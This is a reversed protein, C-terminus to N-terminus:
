QLNIGFNKTAVLTGTDNLTDTEEGLKATVVYSKNGQLFHRLQKCGRGVGVVAYLVM